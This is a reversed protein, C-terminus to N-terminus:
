KSSFYSAHIFLLYVIEKAHSNIRKKGFIADVMGFVDVFLINQASIDCFLCLLLQLQEFPACNAILFEPIWLRSLFWLETSSLQIM